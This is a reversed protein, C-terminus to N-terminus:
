RKVFKKQSVAVPHNSLQRAAVFKGIAEKFPGPTPLEELFLSQLSPLVETTRGGVLEQLSPAIRPGFEKFLYLDKVGTFPHLLELWQSGEIDDQWELKSQSRERIDLREVMHIFSQPFFSTCIQAMSSLQWEPQRCLIRLTLHWRQYSSSTKPFTVRVCDSFDVRAQDHEELTPTRSIFQTLEPTDFILQHFFSIDLYDLLPCDILAVLDELYESVGTFFLEILAPLVSRTPPPPRRSERNPRSRPSEFGLYLRKLRPLTSICTVIAEPSIYGSHPICRLILRVLDTASLLLKPLGPIPVRELRLDQLRPASGGMFSDPVVPGVEMDSLLSLHTLTPFPEQMADLIFPDLKLTIQCVRDSRELAAIISDEGSKPHASHHVIIPFPPWVDLMRRVPTRDSCFLRLDLHHLSGFIVNRWKRCVHVLARWWNEAEVECWGSEIVFFDFIELLVDDPLIINITKRGVNRWDTTIMVDIEDQGNTGPGPVYMTGETPSESDSGQLSGDIQTSSGPHGHSSRSGLAPYEPSAQLHPPKRARSNLVNTLCQDIHSSGKVYRLFRM